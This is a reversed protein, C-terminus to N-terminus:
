RGAYIRRYEDWALMVRRVYHRTEDYPILEV